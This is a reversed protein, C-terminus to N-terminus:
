PLAYAASVLVQVNCEVTVKQECMVCVCVSVCFAM